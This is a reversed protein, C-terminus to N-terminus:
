QVVFKMWGTSFTQDVGRVFAMAMYVGAVIKEELDNRFGWEFTRDQEVNPLILQTVVIPSPSTERPKLHRIIPISGSDIADVSLERPTPNPIKSDILRWVKAVDKNFKSIGEALAAKFWDPTNGRQMFPDIIVLEFHDTFRRGLNQYRFRFWDDSFNAIRMKFKMSGASRSNRGPNATSLAAVIRCESQIRIGEGREGRITGTPLESIPEQLVLEPIVQPITDAVTQMGANGSKRLMMMALGLLILIEM